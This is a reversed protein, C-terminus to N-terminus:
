LRRFPLVEPEGSRILQDAISWLHSNETWDNNDGGLGHLLYLIPYTRASDTDFSTPLYVNYARPSGLIRSHITDTVIRSRASAAFSGAALLAILLTLTKRMATTM